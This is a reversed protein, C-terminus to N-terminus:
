NNVGNVSHNSFSMYKIYFEKFMKEIIDNQSRLNAWTIAFRYPKININDGKQQIARNFDINISRRLQELNLKGYRMNGQWPNPINTEDELEKSNIDYNFLSGFEKYYMPGNGHRTLFSRTVYVPTLVFNPPGSLLSVINTLGTNSPTVHPFFGSNQDLLLGQAGEFICGGSNVINEDKELTFNELNVLFEISGYFENFWLKSQENSYYDDVERVAYIVNDLIRRNSFFHRAKSFNPANFGRVVANFIGHGTSGHRFEGRSTEELQNTRVDSPFVINARPDISISPYRGTVQHFVELERVLYIPNIYMFRSLHTDIGRFAGAGIQSFIHRNGDPLVVTHGAQSGGNFRVVSQYEGTQAFYDVMQGKGEDGFNAGIVAIHRAIHRIMM